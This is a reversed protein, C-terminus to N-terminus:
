FLHRLLRLRPFYSAPVPAVPSAFASRSDRGPFAFWSFLQTSSIFLRPSAVLGLSALIANRERVGVCTELRQWATRMECGFRIWSVCM